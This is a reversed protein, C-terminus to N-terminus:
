SSVSLYGMARLEGIVETVEAPTAEPNLVGIQDSTVSRLAYFIGVDDIDIDEEYYEAAFRVYADPRPDLLLEFLWEASQGPDGVPGASWESDGALRWACFTVDLGPAEEVVFAPDDLMPRLVEPLGDLLGDALAHGPNGWPSLKSEHDFGSVLCGRPGGIIAYSDGSGNRMSAMWESSSWAPDFSYYRMSWDPSMVADLAATALSVRRITEPDPLRRAVALASM